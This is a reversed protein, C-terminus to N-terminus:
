RGKQQVQQIVLGALICGLGVITSALIAEGLVLYILVLSLIPSLFILNSIKATSNTLKMAKLWFIFALGMEFAGIYIASAVGQWPMTRIENNLLCYTIIVPLAAIFNLLLGLLAPRSDKTNLIWYLAWIVTSVLALVVGDLNDFELLWPQGKTAIYLVGFYCLLAAAIDQKYLRHGLIPVALLTMTLAWTYNIAQAQQASLLDYAQFLILYYLTPNLVGFGLSILGQKKSVQKIEALKGQWWLVVLLVASSAISAILLMQGPSLYSLSIKFATAVTSWCLVAALGYSYARSQNTM